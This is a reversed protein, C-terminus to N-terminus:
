CYADLTISANHDIVRVQKAEVARQVGGHGDRDGKVLFAGEPLWQQAEL